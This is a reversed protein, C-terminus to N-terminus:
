RISDKTNEWGTEGKHHSSKMMVWQQHTLGKILYQIKVKDLSPLTKNTTTKNEKYIWEQDKRILRLFLTTRETGVRKNFLLNKRRKM